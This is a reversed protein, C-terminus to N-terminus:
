TYVVSPCSDTDPDFQAQVLFHNNGLIMNYIRNTSGINNYGSILGACKDGIELNQDDVFGIGAPNTLMESLEHLFVSMVFDDWGPNPTLYNLPVSWQCLQGGSGIFSFPISEHNTSRFSSHYGCFGNESDFSTGEDFKFNSPKSYKSDLIALIFTNGADLSQKVDPDGIVLKMVSVQKSYTHLTAPGYYYIAKKM